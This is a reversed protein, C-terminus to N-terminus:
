RAPAAPIRSFPGRCRSWTTSRCRHCPRCARRQRAAAAVAAGRRSAKAGFGFTSAAAAVVSFFIFDRRDVENAFELRNAEREIELESQALLDLEDHHQMRSTRAPKSHPHSRVSIRSRLPSSLEVQHRIRPQSAFHPFCRIRSEPPIRFASPIRIPVTGSDRMGETNRMRRKGYEADWGRM